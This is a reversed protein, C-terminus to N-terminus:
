VHHSITNWPVHDKLQYMTHVNVLWSDMCSWTTEKTCIYMGFWANIVPHRDSHLLCFTQSWTFTIQIWRSIMRQERSMALCWKPWMCRIYVKQVKSDILLALHVMHSICGSTSRKVSALFPLPTITTCVLITYCQLLRNRFRIANDSLSILLISKVRTM